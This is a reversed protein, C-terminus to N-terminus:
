FHHAPRAPPTVTQGGLRGLRADKRAWLDNVWAQFRARFEPDGEYDGHMLDQPVPLVDVHLALDDQEGCFWSWWLWKRRTPRYALTVDIIGAFQEGMANLAFSLGAAKPRLLHRYPSQKAIRKAENFRTGELFNVVTVPETKFIECSRRTTELDEFRLAPNAAIAAKSHRKMFPFDMAWCGVGIIPVYILEWKLFFRPLPVRGHCFDFLILIDAWSQHNCVLLYSRRPDLRGRLDIQWQTPHLLRILLQNAAAWQGAVGVCYRSCGRQLPPYPILKLLIAPLLFAFVTITTGLIALFTIAGVM